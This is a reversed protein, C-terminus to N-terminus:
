EVERVSTVEPEYGMERLQSVLADRADPSRTVVSVNWSVASANGGETPDVLADFNPMGDLARIQALLGELAVDDSGLAALDFGAAQQEQLLVALQRIDDEAGSQNDAILYGEVQEPTWDAPIVDIRLETLGEAIAAELVGHGAVMLFQNPAGQQAVASRVQGFRAISARLKEIQEDPHKRYNRPHPSLESIPVVRNVIESM